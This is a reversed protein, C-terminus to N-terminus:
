CGPIVTSEGWHFHGALVRQKAIFPGQEAPLILKHNVLCIKREQANPVNSPFRGSVDKPCVSRHLWSGAVRSTIGPLPPSPIYSYHVRSAVCVVFVPQFTLLEVKARVRVRVWVSCLSIVLVEFHSFSDLFLPM